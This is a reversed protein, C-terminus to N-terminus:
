SVVLQNNAFIGYVRGQLSLGLAACNDVSSRISSKDFVYGADPNFLSLRATQGESILSPKLGFRASAHTLLSITKELPLLKNAIGFVSELGISGFAALDFEVRKQEIDMPSHDSTIMDITGDLLGDLLAQRDSAERLPPLLKRDTDFDAIDQDLLILHHASVSCSVDLGSKKAERILKVAAESSITPIHLKGGTYTLIHLDRTIRATESLVPMGSLGHETSFLGEHVCGGIALERDLPFSAVLGGFGSVYQLALKLIHARKLESKYDGFMVAGATKMDYLEALLESQLHKTLAGVPHVKVAYGQTKSLLFSVQSANDTVPVLDPQLCIDTFGSLAAVLLGNELTEREEHGPEGFAVSSDFWGPSVHLNHKEVVEFGEEQNIKNDIREIKGNKILIDKVTHHYSSASDIIKASKILINM